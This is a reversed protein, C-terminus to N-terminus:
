RPIAEKFNVYQILMYFIAVLGGIFGLMLFAAVLGLALPIRLLVALTLILFVVMSTMALGALLMELRRSSRRKNKAELMRLDVHPRGVLGAHGELRMADRRMREKLGCDEGMADNDRPTPDNMRRM